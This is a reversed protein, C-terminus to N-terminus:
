GQYEDDYDQLVVVDEADVIHSTPFPMWSLDAQSDETADVLAPKRPTTAATEPKRPVQQVPEPTGDLLEELAPDTYFNETQRLATHLREFMRPSRQEQAPTPELPVSAFRESQVLQEPELYATTSAAQTSSFKEYAAEYSVPESPEEENSYEPNLYTPEKIAQKPTSTKPSLVKSLWNRSESTKISAARSTLTPEYPSENPPEYLDAEMMESYAELPTDNEETLETILNMSQPTVGIVLQREKIQVLYLMHGPGMTTTNLITFENGDTLSGLSFGKKILAGQLGKGKQKLLASFVDSKGQKQKLHDFLGPFREMLKPLGLKVFAFLLSLVFLLSFVIRIPTGDSTITKGPQPMVESLPVGEEQIVDSAIEAPVNAVKKPLISVKKAPNKPKAPGNLALISQAEIDVPVVKTTSSQPPKVAIKSKKSEIPKDGLALMVHSMEGLPAISSSLPTKKLVISKKAGPLVAAGQGLLQNLPNMVVGTRRAEPAAKISAPSTAKTTKAGDKSGDPNDISLYINSSHITVITKKDDTNKEIDVKGRLSPDILLRSPDFGGVMAQDPIQIVMGDEKRKIQASPILASDITVNVNRDSDQSIAIPKIEALAVLTLPFGLVALLLFSISKSRKLLHLSM